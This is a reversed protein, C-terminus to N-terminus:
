APVRLKRGPTFGPGAVLIKEGKRTAFTILSGSATEAKKGDRYLTVAAEGWPNRLRCEAGALSELEVCDVKGGAMAASVLFAGRALLKFAADWQPPCAPFLRIIPPEAPDPPNSQLLAMHLAESARGLSQADLAQAGERLTLRNALV